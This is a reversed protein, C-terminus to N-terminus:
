CFLTFLILICKKLIKYSQQCLFRSPFCLGYGTLKIGQIDRLLDGFGSPLLRVTNLPPTTVM